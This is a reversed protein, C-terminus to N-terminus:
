ACASLLPQALAAILTIRSVGRFRMGRSMRLADTEPFRGNSHPVGRYAKSVGAICGRSPSLVDKLARGVDKMMDPM